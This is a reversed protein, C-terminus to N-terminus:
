KKIEKSLYTKMEHMIMYLHMHYKKELESINTGDIHELFINGLFNGYRKTIIKIYEEKQLNSDIDFSDEVQEADEFVEDINLNSNRAYLKDRSHNFKYASFMYKLLDEPPDKLFEYIKECRLITDHFIDENIKENYYKRTWGNIKKKLTDYNEVVMKWYAENYNNKM